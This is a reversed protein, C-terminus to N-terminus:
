NVALQLTHVMCPLSLVGFEVAAKAMNRENDRVVIHVKVKPIDLKESEVSM